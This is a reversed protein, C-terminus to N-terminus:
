KKNEDEKNFNYDFNKSGPKEKAGYTAIVKGNRYATWKGKRKTGKNNHDNIFSEKKGTRLDKDIHIANNPAIFTIDKGKFEKNLSWSKALEDSYCAHLVITVGKKGNKKWEISRNLVKETFEQPTKIYEVDGRGKRIEFSSASTEGDKYVGHLWINIVGPTNQEYESFDSIEKDKFTLFHLKERGDPDIYRVPNNACYAYPSVDYYKECMPDIRDWRALVPNYQRAGYDYTNLGHMNDFEKGNYKNSQFNNDASGDCFQTGFPYYNMTQVVTGNATRDAKVVQRVSGLHDRNYYYFTFNDQGTNGDYAAAQCYGEDFQLKDIRGNRM